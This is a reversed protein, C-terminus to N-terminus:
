GKRGVNFVVIYMKYMSSCSDRAAGRANTWEPRTRLNSQARQWSVGIKYRGQKDQGVWYSTTQGLTEHKV